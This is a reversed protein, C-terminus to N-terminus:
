HAAPLPEKKNKYLKFNPIHYTKQQHKTPNPVNELTSEDEFLCDKLTPAPWTINFTNLDLHTPQASQPLIPTSRNLATQANSWEQQVNDFHSYDFDPENLPHFTDEVYTAMLDAVNHESSATLGNYKMKTIHNSGKGMGGLKKM